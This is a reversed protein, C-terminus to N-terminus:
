RRGAIEEPFLRARIVGDEIKLQRVRLGIPKGDLTSWSQLVIPIPRGSLFDNLWPTPSTSSNDSNDSMGSAGVVGRRIEMMLKKRLGGPLAMRGVRIAGLQLMPTEDLDAARGLPLQVDVSVLARYSRSRGALAIRNPLFQVSPEDCWARLGAAVPHDQWKQILVNIEAETIEIEIAQMPTGSARFKHQMRGVRSALESIKADLSGEAERFVAASYTAPRHWSPDTAAMALLLVAM